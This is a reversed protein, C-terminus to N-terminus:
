RTAGAATTTTTTKGAAADVLKKVRAVVAFELAAKSKAIEDLTKARSDRWDNAQVSNKELADLAEIVIASLNRLDVVLPRAEALAPSNETLQRLEPDSARWDQVMARIRAANAATNVGALMEDVAQNFERAAPADPQAADVLGTLPSLMNQPRARYRRYEKVPEIISVLTQLSSTDGGAALRRLLMAQNKRHTLGLEELQLAIVALRRYM